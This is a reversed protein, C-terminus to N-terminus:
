GALAQERREVAQTPWPEAWAPIHMLRDLWRVIHPYDGLPMESRRWECAMSALQFDAITLRNCAVFDRGALHGDLVAALTKLEPIMAPLSSRDPEGIHFTAKVVHEFYFPGVARSWHHDNWSLWRLVEVQEAPHHAPWMDSRERICLYAMIASSEWLVFDGDVMTPAKRNPNLATYEPTKMGGAKLDMEICDADIGLYKVLALVRRPAQAKIWYIKM